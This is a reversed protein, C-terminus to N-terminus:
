LDSLIILTSIGGWDNVTHFFKDDKGFVSLSVFNVVLVFMIFVVWYKGM